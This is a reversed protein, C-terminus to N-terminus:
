SRRFREASNGEADEDSDDDFPVPAPVTAGTLYFSPDYFEALRHEFRFHAAGESPMDFEDFEKDRRLAERRRWM